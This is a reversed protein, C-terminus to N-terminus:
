GIEVILYTTMKQDKQVQRIQPQHIHGCIVYQYGDQLALEIAINEFNNIWSVARKVSSKVKKSLSMKEKGIFALWKNILRNIWILIDYGKGGLRAIIKASGKTTADFV